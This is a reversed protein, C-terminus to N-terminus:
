LGYGICPGYYNYIFFRITRHVYHYAAAGHERREDDAFSRGYLPAVGMTDFFGGTVQYVGTVVPEQGGLVTDRGGSWAFMAEFSSAGAIWDQFNPYSM